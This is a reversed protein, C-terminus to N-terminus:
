PFRACHCQRAAESTATEDRDNATVDNRKSGPDIFGLGSRPSIDREGGAMGEPGHAVALDSGHLAPPGIEGSITVAVVLMRQACFRPGVGDEGFVVKPIDSTQM